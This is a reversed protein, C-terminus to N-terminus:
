TLELFIKVFNPFINKSIFYHTTISFFIQKQSLEKTKLNYHSSCKNLFFYQNGIASYLM